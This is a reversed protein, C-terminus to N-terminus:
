VACFELMACYVGCSCYVFCDLYEGLSYEGMHSFIDMWSVSHPFIMTCLLQEKIIGFVSHFGSRFWNWWYWVPASLAYLRAFCNQYQGVIFALICCITSVHSVQWLWGFAFFWIHDWVRTSLLQDVGM